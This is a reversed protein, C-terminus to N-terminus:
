RYLERGCRVCEGKHNECVMAPTRAFSRGCIFCKEVDRSSSCKDCLYAPNKAPWKGCVICEEKQRGFGHQSCLSVIVPM